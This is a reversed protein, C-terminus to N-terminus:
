IMTDTIYCVINNIIAKCSGTMAMCESPPKDDVHVHLRFMYTYIYIYVCVYVCMNRVM